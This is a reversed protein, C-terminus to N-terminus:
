ANIPVGLGLKAEPHVAGRLRDPNAVGVTVNPAKASTGFTLL